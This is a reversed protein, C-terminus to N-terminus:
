GKPTVALATSRREPRGLSALYDTVVNAPHGILGQFGQLLSVGGIHREASTATALMSTKVASAAQVAAPTDKVSAVRQALRQRAIACTSMHTRWQSRRRRSRRRLVGHLGRACR